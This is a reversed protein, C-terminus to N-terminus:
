NCGRSYSIALRNQSLHYRSAESLSSSSREGLAVSCFKDNFPAAPKYQKNTVKHKVVFIDNSEFNDIIDQAEEKTKIDLPKPKKISAEFKEKGDTQLVAYVPWYEQPVFAQIEKEREAVLRLGPSQVRGASAGGTAQKIPYSAKFGVIRDLARRAEYAEYEGADLDRANEISEWITSAKIANPTIRKVKKQHKAPILDYVSWGIAEGERDSDTAIFIVDSDAAEKKINSYIDKKSPDHELTMKYGDKLDVGFKNPPLDRFSGSTAIVTAKKGLIKSFAGQKGPAEIVVLTKKDLQKQM